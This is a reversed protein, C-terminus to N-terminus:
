ADAAFFEVHYSSDIDQEVERVRLPKNRWSGDAGFKPYPAIANCSAGLGLVRFRQLDPCVHVIARLTVRPVNTFDFGGNRLMLASDEDHVWDAVMTGPLKPGYDAESESAILERMERPYLGYVGFSIVGFTIDAKDFGLEFACNTAVNAGTGWLIQGADHYAVTKWAVYYRERYRPDPAVLLAATTPDAGFDGARADSVYSACWGLAAWGSAISLAAGAVALPIQVNDENCEIEFKGTDWQYRCKFTLPLPDGTGFVAAVIGAANLLQEVRQALVHPSPYIGPPITLSAIGGYTGAGTNKYNLPLDDNVGATITWSHGCWIRGGGPTLATNIASEFATALTEPRTYTAHALTGTVTTANRKFNCKDNTADITIPKQDHWSPLSFGMSSGKPTCFTEFNTRGKFHDYGYQIRYGQLLEVDSTVDAAFLDPFDDKELVLDYDVAAGQTWPHLMWKGTFRDLLVCSLCQEAMRAVIEQAGVQSGGIWCAIKPASPTGRRLLHRAKVFSGFGVATDDPDWATEFSSQGAHIALFHRVVDPAAQVLGNATGTYTGSGDDKHGKFNAFFQAQVLFTAPTSIAPIYRGGRVPGEEPSNIFPGYDPRYFAPTVLSRNPRYKVKLVVWIIKATNASGGGFDLRVDIVERNPSSSGTIGGFDWNQTYWGSDWTGTLFAPTTGIANGATQVVSGSDGSVPNHPYVRLKHTNGANGIFCVEVGVSEIRGEGAGVPLQLELVGNGPQTMTAFSTEDFPDMARRPNLATNDSTRVDIPRIGLYALMNDDSITIYSESAGFHETIGAADLPALVDGAAMYISYGNARDFLDAVDHGAALLKVDAAGSGPDVLILPVVGMGAGADQQKSKNGYASTHPARMPFDNWDGYVIPRPQGQTGDPANPETSKDITDAPTPKNWDRPQICNLTIGTAAGASDRTIPHSDVTGQFVQGKKSADSVSREWLYITVVAGQWRWTPLSGFVDLGGLVAWKRNLIRVSTECPSPGGGLQDITARIPQGNAGAEYATGDPLVVEHNAARLTKPGGPADAFYIEFLTVMQRTKLNRTAALLEPDFPSSM